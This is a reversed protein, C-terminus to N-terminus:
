ELLMLVREMHFQLVLTSSTCEIAILIKVNGAKLSPFYRYLSTDILISVAPGTISLYRYTDISGMGQTQYSFTVM